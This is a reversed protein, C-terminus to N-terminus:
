SGDPAEAAIRRYQEIAQDFARRAADRESVAIQKARARWLQEAAGLCWLASTRSVRIPRGAVIVDVPNTHLQPFQRLAVWSSREIPVSFEVDHDRDDAPVVQAAAVKGNVILEVRREGREPMFEGDRRPGHLNVTDGLLRRGRDPVIGGHAVALPTRAAFAVRTQVKVKAPAKLELREGSEKGEVRFAL